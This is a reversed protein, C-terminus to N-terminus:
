PQVHSNPLRDVQELHPTEAFSRVNGLHVAPRLVEFDERTPRLDDYLPDSGLEKWRRTLSKENYPHNIPRNPTRLYDLHLKMHAGLVCWMGLVVPTLPRYMIIYSPPFWACSVWVKAKPSVKLVVMFGFVKKLVDMNFVTALMSSLATLSNTRAFDDNRNMEQAIWRKLSKLTQRKWGFKLRSITRKFDARTGKFVDKSMNPFAHELQQMRSNLFEDMSKNPFETKCITLCRTEGLLEHHVKECAQSWSHVAGGSADKILAQNDEHNSPWRGEDIDSGDDGSDHNSSTVLTSIRSIPFSYVSGDDDEDDDSDEIVIASPTQESEILRRGESPHPQSYCEIELLTHEDPHLARCDLCLSLDPCIQCQWRLGSLSEQCLHCTLLTRESPTESCESTGFIDQLARSRARTTVM